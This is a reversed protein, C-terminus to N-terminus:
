KHGSEGRVEIQEALLSHDDIKTGRTNVYDGSKIDGAGIHVGQKKIITHSDIKVTVSGHSESQV